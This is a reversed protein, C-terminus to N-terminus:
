LGGDRPSKASPEGRQRPPPPGLPHQGDGRPRRRRFHREGDRRMDHLRELFHVLQREQDADLLERSRLINDVFARELARHARSSAELLSEIQEQRPEDSLLESRLERQHEVVERRATFVESFFTRQIEIFRERDAGELQLEEALRGVFPPMREDGPRPAERGPPGPLPAEDLPAKQRVAGGLLLGVNMGISLLLVIVLWWQKM